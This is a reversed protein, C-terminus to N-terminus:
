NVSFPLQGDSEKEAVMFDLITVEKRFFVRLRDLLIVVDDEALLLQKEPMSVKLLSAALYAMDLDNDPLQTRDFRVHKTSELVNLYRELWVRLRNGSMHLTNPDRVVSPLNDVLGVLYPETYEMTQIRFRQEGMAVINMRGMALEQVQTISASCGVPYPLAQSGMGAVESGSELLVVGFPQSQDICRRIMLKYREEFIHLSLPMKPFLVSNLPFLPLRYM